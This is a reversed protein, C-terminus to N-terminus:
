ERYGGGGLRWVRFGGISLFEGCDSALFSHPELAGLWYCWAVAPDAGVFDGVMLHILHSQDEMGLMGSGM